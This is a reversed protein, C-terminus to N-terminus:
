LLVFGCVMTVLPVPTSYLLSPKVRGPHMLFFKLSFICTFQPKWHRTTTTQCALTFPMVCMPSLLSASIYAALSCKGMWHLPTSQPQPLTGRFSTTAVAPVHSQGPILISKYIKSLLKSNEGILLPFGVFSPHCSCVNLKSIGILYKERWINCLVSTGMVWGMLSMVDFWWMDMSTNRVNGLVYLGM